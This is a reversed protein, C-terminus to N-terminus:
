SAKTITPSLGYVVILAPRDPLTVDCDVDCRKAFPIRLQNNCRRTLNEPGFDGSVWAVLRDEGVEVSGLGRCTTRFIYSMKRFLDAPAHLV